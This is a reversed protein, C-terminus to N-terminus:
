DPAIDFAVSLREGGDFPRTGHYLTSPFLICHGVRPLVTAIPPLDLRLDPPSRGLELAGAMEGSEAAPPVILHAASSFIGQPHIHETHKGAGTLRISWSGAVRFPADRHRLVPHADDFDPMSRRHREVAREISGILNQIEQETRDFLGGRTQTGDRVSQGIPWSSKAHLSQLLTVLQSYEEDVLELSQISVLGTQGHLWHHRPDDVLRWAIDLLAWTGISDPQNALVGELLAAARKPDHRRLLHRAEYLRREDTNLDLAAFIREARMDDGAEGARAAEILALDELKPFRARAMAAIDAAQDFRDVGALMRCWSRFIEPEDPQRRSAEAYHDCFGTRDGASWRQQALLELAAVWGPMQQVLTQAVARAGELDGEIEMAQALGLWAEADTTETALVRRYRAVMDAEGRELAMRARGHLARRHNPEIAICREYSHAAASLYRLEREIGARASWYRADDSLHAQNSRLAALAESARGLASLTIARNVIAEGYAPLRELAHDFYTLAAAHDRQRAHFSGASNLLAADHPHAATARQFLTAAEDTRGAREAAIAANRQITAADSVPRPVM